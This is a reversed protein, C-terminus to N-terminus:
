TGVKWSNTSFKNVEDNKFADLVHILCKRNVESGAASFKVKKRKKKVPSDQCFSM